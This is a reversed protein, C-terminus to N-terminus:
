KSTEIESIEAEAEIMMETETKIGETETEVTGVMIPHSVSAPRLLVMKQTSELPIRILRNVRRNEQILKKSNTILHTQIKSAQNERKRNRMIMMKILHILWPNTPISIICTAQTIDKHSTQKVEKQVLAKRSILVEWKNNPGIILTILSIVQLMRPQDRVLEMPHNAKRIIFVQKTVTTWIIEQIWPIVIKRVSLVLNSRIGLNIVILHTWKILRCLFKEEMNILQINQLKIQFAWKRKHLVKHILLSQVVIKILLTLFMATNAAATHPWRAAVQHAVSWTQSDMNQLPHCVQEQQNEEVTVWLSTKNAKLILLIQSDM